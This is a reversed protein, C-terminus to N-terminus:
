VYGVNGFVYRFNSPRTSCIGVSIRVRRVRVSVLEVNGFMDRCIASMVSSTGVSVLGRRVPRSV